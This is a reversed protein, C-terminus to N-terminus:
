SFNILRQCFKLRAFRLVLCKVQLWFSMKLESGAGIKTRPVPSHFDPAKPGVILRIKQTRRKEDPSAKKFGGAIKLDFESLFDLLKSDPLRDSKKKRGDSAAGGFDADSIRGTRKSIRECSL